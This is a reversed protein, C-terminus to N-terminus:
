DTRRRDTNVSVRISAIDRETNFPLGTQPSNNVNFEGDSFRQHWKIVLRRSCKASDREMFKLMDIPTIEATACQKIVYRQETRLTLNM